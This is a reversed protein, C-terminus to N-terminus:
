VLAELRDRATVPDGWSEGGPALELLPWLSHFTRAALGLQPDATDMAACIRAVVEPGLEGHLFALDVAPDDVGIEGLDLLGVLEGRDSVILHEVRFDRHCLVRLGARTELFALGDEVRQRLGDPLSVAALAQRFEAIPDDRPVAQVISDDVAVTHFRDLVGAIAPILRPNTAVMEPTLPTGVIRRELIAAPLGNVEEIVTASAPVPVGRDRLTGLLAVEHGRGGRWTWPDPYRRSVRLVWEGDPAAFAYALTSIGEGVL